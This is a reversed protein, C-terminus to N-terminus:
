YNREITKIVNKLTAAYNPDTAYGAQAVGDAFLYPHDRKELAKAYRPNRLFFEAHDTFSEEPTDYKMFWDKVVYTYKGDSRKTVSIIEPFSTDNPYSMVERTVVLQRRNSPTDRKAKVGFMMNGPASKGWGTELASQALIFKASIGTKAETQLAFAKYKNVFEKPTM